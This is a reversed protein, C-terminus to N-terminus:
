ILAALENAAGMRAHSGQGPEFGAIQGLDGGVSFNKQSSGIVLARVSDDALLDTVAAVLATRLKEDLANRGAPDSLLVQRVGNPHAHVVVPGTAIEASMVVRRATAGGAWM